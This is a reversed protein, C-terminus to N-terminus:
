FHNLIWGLALIQPVTLLPLSLAIKWSGTINKLVMIETYDTSVGAMLFAFGNGPAHARMVLDAGIPTSGESCVEIITTTLLTLALGALTPGYWDAFTEVPVFTRIMAALVIGFLLWRLVMKGDHWGDALVRSWFAKAPRFTKLRSRADRILSFDAPLSVANPNDPLIKARILALYLLGTVIAIAVSLMIFVLTWKLGIMAILIFTLSISNWPSAILFTMVQALSAGREYLKAGVMLIGHSCLDLLVGAAAARFIGGVTDGRGLLASFYEKPVQGMIGVFFIGILVGWWMSGIMDLVNHGFMHVIPASLQMAGCILHAAIGALIVILSGWLLYDHRPTGHDHPDCCTNM